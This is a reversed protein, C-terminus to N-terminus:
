AMVAGATLLRDDIMLRVNGRDAVLERVKGGDVVCVDPATLDCVEEVGFLRALVSGAVINVLEGLADSSCKEDVEGPEVGLVNAALEACIDFDACIFVFGQGSAGSFNVSAYRFAGPKEPLVVDEGPDAFLFAFTELVEAITERLTEKIDSM